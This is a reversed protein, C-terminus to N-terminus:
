RIVGANGLDELGIQLVAAHQQARHALEVSAAAFGAHVADWNVAAARKDLVAQEEPSVTWQTGPPGSDYPTFPQHHPTPIAPAPNDAPTPDPAALSRGVCSSSLLTSAALAAFKLITRQLM